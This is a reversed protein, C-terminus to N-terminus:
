FEHSIDYIPKMCNLFDKEQLCRNLCFEIFDPDEKKNTTETDDNINICDFLEFANLTWIQSNTKVIWIDNGLSGVVAGRKKDNIKSNENLKTAVTTLNIQWNVINRTLRTKNEDSSSQNQNKMNTILNLMHKKNSALKKNSIKPNKSFATTSLPSSLYQSENMSKNKMALERFNEREESTMEKWKSTIKRAVEVLNIGPNMKIVQPRYKKSFLIFGRSNAAAYTQPTKVNTATNKEGKMEDDKNNKEGSADDEDDDNELNDNPGCVKVSVPIMTAHKPHQGRSWQVESIGDFKDRNNDFNEMSIEEFSSNLHEMSAKLSKDTSKDLPNKQQLIENIEQASFDEDFNIISNEDNQCSLKDIKKPTSIVNSEKLQNNDDPYKTSLVKKIEQTTFDAGIDVKPLQSFREEEEDDNHQNQQQIKEVLCVNNDDDDDVDNTIPTPSIANNCQNEKNNNSKSSMSKSISNKKELKAKKAVPETNEEVETSSFNLYAPTSSVDVDKIIEQSDQSLNVQYYDLLLKEVKELIRDNDKLLVATKNPELNVDVDSPDVTILLFFVPKKRGQLKDDHFHQTLIRVILQEYKKFTVPRNNVFVHQYNIQCFPLIDHFNNKPIILKIDYHETHQEKHDIFEYNSIMNKGYINILCDQIKQCPTKNFVISNDIKYTIRLQAHCIAFDKLLNEILKLDQTSKKKNKIIQRRVPINKFLTHIQVTTGITRCCMEGKQIHGNYNMTYCRAVDDDQTRTIIKVTSINCMANLAEGRFGYYRLSEFDTFNKLKSTYSPLAMFAADTKTIGKGNDKVEILSTGEDFLNVEISNAEADLSNEVLEKVVSFVSTIVQTTTLQRSTHKDLEIISM